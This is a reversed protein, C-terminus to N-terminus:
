WSKCAVLLLDWISAELKLRCDMSDFKLLLSHTFVPNEFKVEDDDTWAMFPIIPTLPTKDSIDDGSEDVDIIAGWLLNSIGCTSSSELSILKPGIASPQESKLRTKKLSLLGM